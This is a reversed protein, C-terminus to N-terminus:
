KGFGLVEEVISDCDLKYKKLQSAVSAQKVFGEVAIHRFEASNGKEKLMSAFVEGVSGNKIGEEAFLINRM